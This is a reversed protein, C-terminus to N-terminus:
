STSCSASLSHEGLNTLSVKAGSDASLNFKDGNHVTIVVSDGSQLPLDNISGKKSLGEVLLQTSEDESTVSCTASIKWFFSNAFVQPENSPLVYEVSVGQTLAHTAASAATNFLAGACLLGLGIKRLM